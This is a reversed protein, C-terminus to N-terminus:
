NAQGSDVQPAHDTWNDIISNQDIWLRVGDDSTTQCIYTGSVPPILVGTWRVSFGDDPLEEPNPNSSGLNLNVAPDTRTFRLEGLDRNGFYQGLLGTVERPRPLSRIWHTVTEVALTDISNRGLPPMQEEGAR